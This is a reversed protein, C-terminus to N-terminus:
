IADKNISRIKAESELHDLYNKAHDVSSLRLYLKFSSESRHGTVAMITHVPVGRLYANSAFSRRATHSSIQSFKEYSNGNLSVTIHLDPVLACVEKIYENYKQNSLTPIKFNYKELILRSHDYIPVTVERNGKTMLVTLFMRGDSEFVNDHEVRSLDGFRLGTFCEFVFLDRVQELRRNNTLNLNFVKTIEDESLYVKDREEHPVVFHKSSFARNIEVGQEFAEQAFTKVDKIHKGVTNMGMGKEEYLFDRFAQYVSLDFSEFYPEFKNKDFFQNLLSLTRRYVQITSDSINKKTRPNFRNRASTIFSEIFDLMGFSKEQKNGSIVEDIILTIEQKTPCRKNAGVFLYFLERIGAEWKDLNRNIQVSQGDKTKLRQYNKKSRDSQWNKTEILIGTSKKGNILHNDFSYKIM